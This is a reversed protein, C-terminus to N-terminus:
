RLRMQGCFMRGSPNLSVWTHEQLSCDPKKIGRHWIHPEGWDGAMASRRMWIINYPELQCQQVRLRCFLRFKHPLQRPQKDGMRVIRCQMRWDIKTKRGRGPLNAVTGHTVFKKIVNHVTSLPVKLDRSISKYGQSQQYKEVIKSRLDESLEWSKKIKEMSPTACVPVCCLPQTLLVIRDLQSWNCVTKIHHWHNEGTLKQLKTYFSTLNPKKRRSKASLLFLCTYVLVYTIAVSRQSFHHMKKFLELPALVKIWSQIYVCGTLLKSVFSHIFVYPIIYYVFFHSFVWLM